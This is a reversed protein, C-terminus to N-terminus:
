SVEIGLGAADATRSLAEVMREQIRGQNRLQYYSGYLYRGDKIFPRKISKGRGVRGGFDLWPYYPARAGGARVRVAKRTSAARLSRGARGSRRPIKPRAEDILLGAADNLAVRVQKPFETGAQRLGRTFERLGNIRIPEPM